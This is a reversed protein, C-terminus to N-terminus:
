IHEQRVNGIVLDKGCPVLSCLLGGQICIHLYM